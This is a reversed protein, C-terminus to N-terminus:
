SRRGRTPTPDEHEGMATALAELIEAQEEYAGPHGKGPPTLRLAEIRAIASWLLALRRIDDRNM